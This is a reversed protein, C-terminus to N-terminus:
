APQLLLRMSLGPADHNELIRHASERAEDPDPEHQAAAQFRGFCSARQFAPRVGLQSEPTEGPTGGPEHPGREVAELPPLAFLSNKMM